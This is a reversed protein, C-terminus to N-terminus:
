ENESSWQNNSRDVDPFEFNPDIRVNVVPIESRIEIQKTRYGNLWHDVDVTETQTTNDEFEVEVVVPMPVNGHDQVNILVEDGNQSVDAIGHDLVWTEYYWSRWFWSLDRGTVDEFTSFM